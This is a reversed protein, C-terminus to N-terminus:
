AEVGVLGLRAAQWSFYAATGPKDPFKLEICNAEPCDYYLSTGDVKVGYNYNWKDDSLLQLVEADTGVHMMAGKSRKTGLSLM